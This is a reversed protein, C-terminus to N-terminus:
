YLSISCSGLRVVLFLGRWPCNQCSGQLGRLGPLGGRRGPGSPACMTLQDGHRRSSTEPGVLDARHQELCCSHPVFLCSAQKGDPSHTEIFIILHCGIAITAMYCLPARFATEAELSTALGKNELSAIAFSDDSFFDRLFM